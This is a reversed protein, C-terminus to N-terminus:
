RCCRICGFLLPKQRQCLQLLVSPHRRNRQRDHKHRANQPRDSIHRRLVIQVINPPLRLSHLHQECLLHQVHLTRQRIDIRQFRRSMRRRVPETRQTATLHKRQLLHGRECMNVSPQLCVSSITNDYGPSPSAVTSKSTARNSVPRSPRRGASCSGPRSPHSTSRLLLM